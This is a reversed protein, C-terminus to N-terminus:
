LVNLPTVATFGCSSAEASNLWWGCWGWGSLRKQSLPAADASASCCTYTFHTSTIPGPEKGWLWPLSLHCVTWPTPSPACLCGPLAPIHTVLLIFAGARVVDHLCFCFISFPCLSSPLSSSSLLCRDLVPLQRESRPDCKLHSEPDTTIRFIFPPSRRSSTSATRCRHSSAIFALGRQPWESSFPSELM